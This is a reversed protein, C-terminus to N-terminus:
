PSCYSYGLRRLVSYNLLTGIRLPSCKVRQPAKKKLEPRDTRAKLKDKENQNYRKKRLKLSEAYEPDQAAREKNKARSRASAARGYDKRSSVIPENRIRSIHLPM